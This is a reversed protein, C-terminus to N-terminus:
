VVIRKLSVMEEQSLSFDGHCLVTLIMTSDEREKKLGISLELIGSWIEDLFNCEQVM